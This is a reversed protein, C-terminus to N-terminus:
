RIFNFVPLTIMEPFPKAKQTNRIKILVRVFEVGRRISLIYPYPPMHCLSNPMPRPLMCAAILALYHRGAVCVFHFHIARLLSVLRRCHVMAVACQTYAVNQRSSSGKEM